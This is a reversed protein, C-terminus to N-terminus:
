EYIRTTKWVTRDTFTPKIEETLKHDRSWLLVTRRRSTEPQLLTTLAAVAQPQTLTDLAKLLAERQEWDGDYTFAHLHFRAARAAISKPKSEINARAGAILASWKEPSAAALAAPLTPVYADVRRRLEDPPYSSSQIEFTLHRNRHVAASSARVIYGLQQNSRLETFFPNSIFSTLVLAAARTAPSDDPLLIERSFVSNVGEIAGADIIDEGTAVKLYRPRLLSEEAGAKAGVARTIDRVSQAAIDATVHGHVVAEFKGQAFWRQAFAQVDAWTATSVRPILDAPAEDFEHAMNGRRSAAVAVAENQATSRLNRLTREKCAEFREASLPFSKLHGAVYTAYRLASDGYGNANLVFGSLVAGVSSQVGARSAEGLAPALFDNLCASYLGLLAENERSAMSRTTVFRLVLATAPRQFETDPAYYLKLRPESILPFPREALVATSEPIFRNAGPLTFGALAPANVLAIYAPGTDETYSYATHYIKEHQDTPVGKAMLSVILNDATLAGLLKRYAPENPSGWIDTAREAVELPYALMRRTLKDTLNYGEGRDGYTEHLQAVRAHQEHFATPFPSERLFRLYSFIHSLVRSYEKQGAATLTVNILYSSYGSTRDYAGASVGDAFGDRKLREELGGVGGQGILASLLESPNSVYDTRITPILFELQLDRIDRVAEVLALRLATRRPLFTPERVLPALTRRPIASFSTRVMKELEDISAKGAVALVMRDASYTKEWFARVEDGTTGTLTDKNGTSFIREVSGPAYLERMVSTLRRGDNQVHRMAENHVANIERTTAEAPFLPSIFVHATRDLAEALAAHRIEMLYWTRDSSTSANRAGGNSKVFDSLGDIAPYKANGRSIMHELFHPLGARDAPSDVAGVGVALTAASLNFRPDSVLMVRLGNELVFRHFVAEDTPAKIRPPLGDAAHVASILFWGFLLPLLHHKM